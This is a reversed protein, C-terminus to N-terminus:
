AVGGSELDSIVLKNNEVKYYFKRPPRPAPGSVVKGDHQIDFVSLHCPCAFVPGDPKFNYGKAVEEPDKVFNFVCGLHPCIRSYVAFDGNPLKVVFGPIKNIQRGLATFEKNAQIFNFSQFDFANPFLSLDFMVPELSEPLDPGQMYNFPKITPKLFRMFPSVAMALTGLIPISLIAKLLNRRTILNMM